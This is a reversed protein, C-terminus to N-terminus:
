FPTVVAAGTPVFGPEPAPEPAPVAAPVAAPEAAPEAVDAFSADPDDPEAAPTGDDRSAGRSGATKAYRATGWNLDHGISDAEIEVNLGSRGGNEWNQVKLRGTVIVRQGRELSAATNVALQRFASVSYWNTEGDVFRSEARDFRRHNSALRFTTISLGASTVIHRPISGVRGVITILDHM